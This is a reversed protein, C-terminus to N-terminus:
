ADELSCAALRGLDGKGLGPMEEQELLVGLYLGIETAAQACTLDDVIARQLTRADLGTRLCESPARRRRRTGASVVARTKGTSAGGEKATM